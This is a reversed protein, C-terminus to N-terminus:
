TMGKTLILKGQTQGGGGMLENCLCVVFFERNIVSNQLDQNFKMKVQM